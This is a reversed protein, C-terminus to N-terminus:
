TSSRKKPIYGGVVITATGAVGAGRLRLVEIEENEVTQNLIATIFDENNKQWSFGGGIATITFQNFKRIGLLKLPFYAEAQPSTFTNTDFNITTHTNTKNLIKDNIEELIDIIKVFFPKIENLNDSM